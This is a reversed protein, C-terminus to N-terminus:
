FVQWELSTTSHDPVPNEISLHCFWLFMNNYLLQEEM